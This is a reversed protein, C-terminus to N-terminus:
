QMERVATVGPLAKAMQLFGSALNHRGPITIMVESDEANIM